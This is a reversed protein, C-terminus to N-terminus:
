YKKHSNRLAEFEFLIKRITSLDSVAAQFFDYEIEVTDGDHLGLVDLIDQLIIIESRQLEIQPFGLAVGIENELNSDGAIM